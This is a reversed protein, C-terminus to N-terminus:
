RSLMTSRLLSRGAALLMCPRRATPGFTAHQCNQRAQLVFDLRGAATRNAVPTQAAVEPSAGPGDTLRWIACGALAAHSSSQLAEADMADESASASEETLGAPNKHRAERLVTPSGSGM